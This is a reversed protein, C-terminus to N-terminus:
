ILLRSADPPSSVGPGCRQSSSRSRAPVASFKGIENLAYIIEGHEDLYVAVDATILGTCNAHVTLRAAPILKGTEEDYVTTLLSPLLRGRGDQKTASTPWEIVVSGKWDDADPGWGGGDMRGTIAVGTGGTMM